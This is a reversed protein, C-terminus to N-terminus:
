DLPLGIILLKCVIKKYISISEVIIYWTVFIILPFVTNFSLPLQNLLLTIIFSLKKHLADAKRRNSNDSSPYTRVPTQNRHNVLFFDSKSSHLEPWRRFNDHFFYDYFEYLYYYKKM